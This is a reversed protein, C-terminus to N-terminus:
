SDSRGPVPPEMSDLGQNQTASTPNNAIAKTTTLIAVRLPLHAGIPRLLGSPPVVGHQRQPQNCGCNCIVILAYVISGREFCVIGTVDWTPDLM